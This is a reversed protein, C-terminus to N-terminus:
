SRVVAGLAIWDAKTLETRGLKAQLLATLAPVPFSEVFGDGSAAVKRASLTRLEALAEGFLRAASHAKQMRLRLNANAVHVCARLLIRERGGQPAAAWLAELVEQSEWFYGRDNLALGYRLAPHRAPVYGRFASPVLAKALDLTEYDADVAGTEGPVYAWRPWPLPSGAHSPVNM